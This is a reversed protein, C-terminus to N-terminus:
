KPSRQIVAGDEDVHASTKHERRDIAAVHDLGELATQRRQSRDAYRALMAKSLYGVTEMIAFDDIGAMVTRGIATQRLAHPTV